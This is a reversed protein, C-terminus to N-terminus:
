KITRYSASIASCSRHWEFCCRELDMVDHIDIADGLKLHADKLWDRSARVDPGFDAIRTFIVKNIYTGDESLPLILASANHFAGSKTQFQGAVFIPQPKAFVREGMAQAAAVTEPVDGVHDTVLFGTVNSTILDIRIIKDGSLICKHFEQPRYRCSRGSLLWFTRVLRALLRLNARCGRHM